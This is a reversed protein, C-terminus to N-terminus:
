AVGAPASWEKIVIEILLCTMDSRKKESYVGSRFGLCAIALLRARRLARRTLPWNVLKREETNLLINYSVMNMRCIPNLFMFCCRSGM